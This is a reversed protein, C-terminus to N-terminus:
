FRLLHIVENVNRQPEDPGGCRLYEGRGHDYADMVQEAVDRWSTLNMECDVKKSIMRSFDNFRAVGSSPDYEVVIVQGETNYLRSTNFQFRM